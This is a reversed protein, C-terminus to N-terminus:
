GGSGGGSGGAGSGSGSGSGSGGSGGSGADPGTGSGPAGGTGNGAGTGTGSGNDTGDGGTNDTGNTGTGGSGTGMGDGPTGSGTGDMPGNDQTQAGPARQDNMDTAALVLPASAGICLVLLLSHAKIINMTFRRKPHNVEEEDQGAAFRADTGVFPIGKSASIVLADLAEAGAGTGCTLRTM